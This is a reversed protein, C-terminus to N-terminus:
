LTVPITSVAMCYKNKKVKQKEYDVGEIQIIVM